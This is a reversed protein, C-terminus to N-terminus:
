NRGQQSQSIVLKALHCIKKGFIGIQTYKPPGQFPSHPYIKHDYSINSLFKTYKNVMQYTNRYNPINACTKTYKALLLRAVKSSAIM